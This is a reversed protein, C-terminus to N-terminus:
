TKRRSTIEITVESYDFREDHNIGRHRKFQSIDLGAKMAETHAQGWGSTYHRGRYGGVCRVIRLNNGWMRALWKTGDQACAIYYNNDLVEVLELPIPM